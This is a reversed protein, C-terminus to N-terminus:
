EAGFIGSAVITLLANLNPADLHDYQLL